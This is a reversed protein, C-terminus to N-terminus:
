FIEVRVQGLGGKIGIATKTGITLDAVRYGYKAQYFGGTDTIRAVVSQGTALNTVRANYGVYQKKDAGVAITLANDNLPQGNAMIVNPDCGLCGAVSYYSAQGEMVLPTTLAPKVALAVAAPKGKWDGTVTIPSSTAVVAGNMHNYPDNAPTDNQATPTMTATLLQMQSILNPLPTVILSTDALAPAPVASVMMVLGSLATLIFKKYMTKKNGHKDQGITNIM